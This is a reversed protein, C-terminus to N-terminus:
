ANKGSFVGNALRNTEENLTQLREVMKAATKSTEDMKESVATTHGATDSFFENSAVLHNKVQAVILPMTITFAKKISITYRNSFSKEAIAFLNNM